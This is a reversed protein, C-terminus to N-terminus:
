RAPCVGGVGAMERCWLELSPKLLNDVATGHVEVELSIWCGHYLHIHKCYCFHLFELAIKGQRPVIQSSYNYHYTTNHLLGYYLEVVVEPRFGLLEYM